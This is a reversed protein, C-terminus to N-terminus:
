KKETLSSNKSEGVIKGESERYVITLSSSPYVV